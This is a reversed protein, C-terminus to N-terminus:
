SWTGQFISKGVSQVSIYSIGGHPPPHTIISWQIYWWCTTNRTNTSIESIKESSLTDFMDFIILLLMYKWLIINHYSFYEKLMLSLDPYSIWSSWFVIQGSKIHWVALPPIFTSLSASSKSYLMNKHLPMLDTLFVNVINKSLYRNQHRM